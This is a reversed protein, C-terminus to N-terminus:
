SHVGILRDLAQRDEILTKSPGDYVVCGRVLVVARPAFMLAKMVQQEVLIMTLAQEERIRALAQMVIDVVVPALGELPEDLLLLEPGGMMARAIALMQQEGGSLQNGKNVRRQALRPFWGYAQELSFGGARRAVVLNEEVTLSPFIEREQPVLGVRARSRRWPAWGTMDRGGVTIAGDRCPVHGMLTSLLTTKGMGNRGIVAVCEGKTVQLSVNDLIVTQGYGSTVHRMDLFDAM